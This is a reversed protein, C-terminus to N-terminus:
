TPWAFADIDAMTAITGSDIATLVSSEASFCADVHALVADSIAVIQSARL